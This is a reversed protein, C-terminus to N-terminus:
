WYTSWLSTDMQTQSLINKTPYQIVTRFLTMRASRMWRDISGGTAAMYVTALM